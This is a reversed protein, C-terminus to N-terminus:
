SISSNVIMSERDLSHSGANKVWKYSGSIPSVWNLKDRLISIRAANYDNTRRKNSEQGFMYWGNVKSDPLFSDGSSARPVEIGSYHCRRYVPTIARSSSSLLMTIAWIEAPLELWLQDPRVSLEIPEILKHVSEIHWLFSCGERTVRSLVGAGSLKRNQYNAFIIPGRVCTLFPATLDGSRSSFLRDLDYSDVVLARDAAPIGWRKTKPTNNSQNKNM